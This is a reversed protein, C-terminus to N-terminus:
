CIGLWGLYTDLDGDPEFGEIYVRAVERLARRQDSDLGVTSFGSGDDVYGHEMFYTFLDRNALTGPLGARAFLDRHTAVFERWKMAEHAATKSRRFSM